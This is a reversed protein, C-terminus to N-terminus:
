RISSCWYPPAGARAKELWNQWHDWSFSESFLPVWGTEGKVLCYYLENRARWATFNISPASHERWYSSASPHCPGSHSEIWSRQSEDEKILISRWKRITSEQLSPLGEIQPWKAAYHEQPNKAVALWASDIIIKSRSIGDAAASAMANRLFARLPGSGKALNNFKIECRKAFEAWWRANNLLLLQGAGESRVPLGEFLDPTLSTAPLHENQSQLNSCIDRACDSSVDMALTVLLAGRLHAAVKGIERPPGVVDIAARVVPFTYKVFHKSRIKILPKPM